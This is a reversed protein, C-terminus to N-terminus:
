YRPSTIVTCDAAFFLDKWNWNDVGPLLDYLVLM